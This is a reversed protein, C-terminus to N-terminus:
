IQGNKPPYPQGPIIAKAKNYIIEMQKLAYQDNDNDLGILQHCDSISLELYSYGHNDKPDYEKSHSCNSDGRHCYIDFDGDPAVSVTINWDDALFLDVYGGIKNWTLPSIRKISM